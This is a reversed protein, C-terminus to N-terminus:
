RGKGVSHIKRVIALLRSFFNGHLCPFHRSYLETERLLILDQENKQPRAKWPIQDKLWRCLYLEPKHQWSMVYAPCVM